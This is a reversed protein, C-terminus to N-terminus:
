NSSTSAAMGQQVLDDGQKVDLKAFEEAKKWCHFCLDPVVDGINLTPYREVYWRRVDSVNIHFEMDCSPCKAFPM